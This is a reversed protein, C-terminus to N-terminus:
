FFSIMPFDCEKKLASKILRLLIGNGLNDRGIEEKELNM